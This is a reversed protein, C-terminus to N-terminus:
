SLMKITMFIPKMVGNNPLRLTAPRLCPSRAGKLSPMESIIPQMPLTSMDNMILDRWAIINITFLRIIVHPM